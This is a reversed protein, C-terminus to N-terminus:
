RRCTHEYKLGNCAACFPDADDSRTRRRAAPDDFYPDRYAPAVLNVPGDISRRDLDAKLSRALDCGGCECTPDGEDLARRVLAITKDSIWTVRAFTPM